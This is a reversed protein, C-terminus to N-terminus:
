VREKQKHDEKEAKELLLRMMAAHTRDEARARKLLWEYTHVKLSIGTQIMAEKEKPTQM